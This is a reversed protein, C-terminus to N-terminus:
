KRDTKLSINVSHPTANKNMTGYQEVDSDSSALPMTAEMSVMHKVAAAMSHKRISKRKRKKSLLYFIICFLVYLWQFVMWGTIVARFKFRVVLGTSIATAVCRLLIFSIMMRHVRTGYLAPVREPLISILFIILTIITAILIVDEDPSPAKTLLLYMSFIQSAVDILLFIAINVQSWRLSHFSDMQKIPKVEM